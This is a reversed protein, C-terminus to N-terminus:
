ATICPFIIQITTGEGISSELYVKGNLKETLGKVLYLGLGNSDQFTDNAKHFMDFVKSKQNEEIGIGNDKFTWKCENTKSEITISLESKKNTDRYKIANEFLNQYISVIAQKDSVFPMENIWEFDIKTEKFGPFAEYMLCIEGHIAAFDIAAFQIQANKSAM